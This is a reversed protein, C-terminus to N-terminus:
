LPNKAVEPAVDRVLLALRLPVARISDDISGGILQQTRELRQRLTNVHISLRRAANAKNGGAEYYAHLADM